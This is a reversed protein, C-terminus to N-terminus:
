QFESPQILFPSFPLSHSELYIFFFCLSSTNFLSLSVFLSLLPQFFFRAIGSLRFILTTKHGEMRLNSIFHITTRAWVCVIIESRFRKAHVYELTSSLSYKNNQNFSSTFTELSWWTHIHIQTHLKKKM